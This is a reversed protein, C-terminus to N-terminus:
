ASRKETEPLWHLKEMLRVLWQGKPMSLLDKRRITGSRVMTYGYVLVAALLAAATAALNHFYFGKPLNRMPEAAMSVLYYVAKAAAGMLAACVLPQLYDRRVDQRIGLFRRLYYQNVAFIMVSYLISVLVLARVDLDTFRLLLVLVVTQVVLAIGASVLPLNMRGISQLAANTITSISYFIVTVALLSLLSSALELSEMQPFMLMTIPRALVALGVASPIAIISTIRIANGVQRRAGTEDRRAYAASIGPIIASSVATAISIPINSIVVAKNSFIGYLTTTATEGAGKLDILMRMYITQNLSTTLNMIVGSLMFPTIVLITDRLFIRYKEEKGTADSLIEAKRGEKSRRFCFVMFLLAILVGAGTGLASGMAGLQARRTPDAGVATQMLLWAAAISVVANALQELIQSVSTPVMSGRAQFYGRMSGLIGFLFVTPAFVQLVCVAVDPVLFRAGFFLLGSGVLGVLVGYMLACRFVRNANRYEGVALKQAMLKSIASPMSYSSVMLIITYINYATGYYGNGEDGIIATLPARYLLGIVRVIMSAMALIGAQVLVGSSRRNDAM